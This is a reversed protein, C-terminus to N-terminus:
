NDFYQEVRESSNQWPKYEWQETPPFFLFVVGTICLPIAIALWHSEALLENFILITYGAIYATVLMALSFQRKRFVILKTYYKRNKKKDLKDAM